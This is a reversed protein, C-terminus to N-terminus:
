KVIEAESTTQNLYTTTTTNPQEPQEPRSELDDSYKRRVEKSTSIDMNERNNDIEVTQKKKYESYEAM